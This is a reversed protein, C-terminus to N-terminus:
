ARLLVPDSTAARVVRDVMAAWANMAARREDAYEYKNYIRDLVARPGRMAGHNVIKHAVKESIKLYSAARTMFTRRLDHLKWPSSTPALKDLQDKGKSYGKFHTPGVGQFVYDSAQIRPLSGLIKVAPDSLFVIHPMENKAVDGPIEWYKEALNVQSWRMSAVETRRQATLILLRVIHGFTGIHDCANWVLRLEDDSLARENNSDAAIRDFSRMPSKVITDRKELWTFFGNLLTFTSAKAHHGRKGAEVLADECDAKTISRVDREGWKKALPAFLGEYRKRSSARKAKGTRKNPRDLFKQFQTKVLYAEGDTEARDKAARREELKKAHPDIGTSKQALAARYLSRADPAASNPDRALRARREDVTEVLKVQPWAGLTLKKYRGGHSYRIAFSKAGSPQVVIRLGPHLPDRLEYRKAQPQLKAIFGNSWESKIRM